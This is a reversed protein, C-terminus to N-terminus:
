KGSHFIRISGSRLITVSFLTKWLLKFKAHSHSFSVQCVILGLIRLLWALIDMLRLVISIFQLQLYPWNSESLRLSEVSSGSTVIFSLSFIQILLALM